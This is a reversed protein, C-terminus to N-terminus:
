KHKLTPSVLGQREKQLQQTSTALSKDIDELSMGSSSPQSQPPQQHHPLHPKPQYHAQSYQYHPQQPPYSPRVLANQYDSPKNHYNQFERTANVHKTDEQLIPCMNTPHGMTVCIGCVMVQPTQGMALKQVFSTLDKIQSELSSTVVENVKHQTDKKMDQRLVFHQSNAVITNFLQRTQQPTKRFVDEGSSANVLRREIPLLGEYFHQILFQEPIQHKPCNYCLNNFREWYDHFNENQGQCIRCIENSLSPLRSAPYFNDLFARAMDVWSNISEPSLYFLWDNARDVLSFPFARLKIKDDTSGQPKMSNCIIHFMKLHKHPDENELGFFTPLHHVLSSESGGELVPYNIGTPTQTVDIEM